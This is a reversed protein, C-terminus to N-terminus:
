YGPAFILRQRQETTFYAVTLEGRRELATRGGVSVSVARHSWYSFVFPLRYIHM